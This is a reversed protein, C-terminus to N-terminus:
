IEYSRTQKKGKVHDQLNVSVGDKFLLFVGGKVVVNTTIGNGWSGIDADTMIIVNDPKYKLIDDAIPQGYTGGGTDSPNTSVKNGFYLIEIVLKKKKVYDRVISEIVAKGDAIKAADWSSSHDFYVRVSPIHANEEERTGPMIFPSDIYRRNPRSWTSIEFSAVEDAIFKSFDAKFKALGAKNGKFEAANRRAIQKRRERERQNAKIKEHEFEAGTEDNSMKRSIDKLRDADSRANLDKLEPDEEEERDIKKQREEEEAQEFEDSGRDGIEIPKDAMGPVYEVFQTGDWVYYKGTSDDIYVDRTNM